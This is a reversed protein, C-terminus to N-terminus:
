LESAFTQHVGAFVLFPHLQEKMKALFLMIAIVETFVKFIKPCLLTDGQPVM